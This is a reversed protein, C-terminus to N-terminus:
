AACSRAKKTFLPPTFTTSRLTPNPGFRTRCRGQMRRLSCRCCRACKSCAITSAPPSPPPSSSTESHSTVNSPHHLQLKFLPLLPAAHRFVTLGEKLCLQFWDRVTVRNGSWNHLYRNHLARSVYPLLPLNFAAVLRVRPRRRTICRPHRCRNCHRRRLSRIQQQIHQAGQEGNRGHQFRPYRSHQVAFFM